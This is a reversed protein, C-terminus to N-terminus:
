EEPEPAVASNAASLVARVSATAVDEDIGCGWITRGDPTECELYTAANADTGAGLSQQSYDVVELDLDFVDRLTAMVSSILGNGRGSVSQEQGEVAIKGTFIRTGDGARTEDYDVLQFHKDPTQVHYAAKFADWIDDAGLERSTQDALRQVHKSFDRQMAKPLKIGQKQQLM